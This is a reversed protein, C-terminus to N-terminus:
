ESSQPRKKTVPVAIDTSKTNRGYVFFVSNTLSTKPKAGQSRPQSNTENKEDMKKVFIPKGHFIKQWAVNAANIEM